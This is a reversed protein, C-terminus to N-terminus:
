EGSLQKFLKLLHSVQHECDQLANHTNGKPLRYDCFSSITRLDMESWYKWPKEINLEHCAWAIIPFDFSGGNCWMWQKDTGIWEVFSEISERMPNVNSQWSQIVDKPKNSWWELTDKSIHCNYKKCDVPDINITFRDIIGSSLNFKVAALQIIVANPKTSLTEIDIMVHSDNIIKFM